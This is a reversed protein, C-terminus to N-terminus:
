QEGLKLKRNLLYNVTSATIASILGLLTTSLVIGLNSKIATFDGSSEYFLIMLGVITGGFGISSSTEAIFIMMNDIQSIKIKLIAEFIFVVISIIYLVFIPSFFLIDIYDRETKNPKFYMDIFQVGTTYNVKMHIIESIEDKNKDSVETNVFEKKQMSYGELPKKLYKKSITDLSERYEEEEIIDNSDIKKEKKEILQHNVEQKNLLPQEEQKKMGMAFNTVIMWILLFLSLILTSSILKFIIQLQKM